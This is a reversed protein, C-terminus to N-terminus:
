RVLKSYTDRDMDRADVSISAIGSLRADFAAVVAQTLEKKVEPTRGSMLYLGIHLFSLPKGGVLAHDYPLLRVKIDAEGFQGSQLAAAHATAMLTAPPVQQEIERSYEIVLHPM